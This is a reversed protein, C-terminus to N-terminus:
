TNARREEMIGVLNGESDKIWMLWLSHDPMRAIVQPEQQITVNREKFVALQQDINPTRFYVFAGTAKFASEGSLYLRIGGCDFFAANPIAFLLKLELVDRYFATARAVDQVPIAIQLIGSLQSNM